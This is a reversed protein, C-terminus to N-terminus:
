KAGMNADLRPASGHTVQFFVPVHIARRGAGVVRFRRCRHGCSRSGPTKDCAHPPAPVASAESIPVPRSREKALSPQADGGIRRRKAVPRPLNGGSLRGCSAPSAHTSLPPPHTVGTRMEVRPHSKKKSPLTRSRQSKRRPPPLRPKPAARAPPLKEVRGPQGSRRLFRATPIAGRRPERRPQAL